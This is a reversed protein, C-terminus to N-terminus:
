SYYNINLGQMDTSLKLQDYGRGSPICSHDDSWEPAKFARIKNVLDKYSFGVFPPVPEPSLGNAFMQKELGGLLMSTCEFAYECAWSDGLFISRQKQLAALVSQIAKERKENLNDILKAPLPLGLSSIRTTSNLISVQTASRFAESRKFVWAICLWLMLDRNWILDGPTEDYWVSTFFEMADRCGYYDALVAIKAFLELSVKRPVEKNRCHLIRLFILFAEPDWGHVALETSGKNLFTNSEKWGGVLMSKFVPSALTLHKASVRIRFCEEEEVEVETESEQANDQSPVESTIDIWFYRKEGEDGKEDPWVAFPLNADKLVLIVEGDPDIIHTPNDM